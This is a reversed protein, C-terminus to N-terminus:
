FWGIKLYQGGKIEPGKKWKVIYKYSIMMSIFFTICYNIINNRILLLCFKEFGLM